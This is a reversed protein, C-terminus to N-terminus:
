SGKSHIFQDFNGNGGGGESLMTRIETRFSRSMPITCRDRLTLTMESYNMHVVQRVNVVFGRHCRQFWDPLQEALSEFTSYFPVEQGRTKLIMKKGRAEFFFIESLRFSFLEGGCRISFQDDEDSGNGRRLAEYLELLIERIIRRDPPIFIVGDPRISPRMYPKLDSQSDMIYVLYVKPNAARASRVMDSCLEATRSAPAILVDHHRLFRFGEGIPASGDSTFVLSKVPVSRKAMLERLIESVTICEGAEHDLVAVKLM